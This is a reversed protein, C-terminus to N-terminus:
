NPLAVKTALALVEIQRDHRALHVAGAGNEVRQDQIAGAIGDLTNQIQGVAVAITDIKENMEDLEVHVAAFRDDLETRISSVEGKLEQKTAFTNSLKTIDADTIM